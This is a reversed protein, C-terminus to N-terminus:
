SCLLPYSSTVLPSMSHLHACIFTLVEICSTNCPFSIDRTYTNSVLNGTLHKYETEQTTVWIGLGLM